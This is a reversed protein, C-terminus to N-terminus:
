GLDSGNWFWSRNAQSCHKSFTVWYDEGLHHNTQHYKGMAFDVFGLTLPNGMQNFGILELDSGIVVWFDLM